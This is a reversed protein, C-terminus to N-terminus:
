RARDSVTAPDPEANYVVVPARTALRDYSRRASDNTERTTWRVVDHGGRGAEARVAGILAGAVGRGRCSPDVYLDDIWLGTSATIPREFVRFHAFGVLERGVSAVLCSTQASPDA